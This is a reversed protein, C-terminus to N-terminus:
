KYAVDKKYENLALEFLLARNKLKKLQRYNRKSDYEYIMDLKLFKHFIEPINELGKNVLDLFEKKSPNFYPIFIKMEYLVEWNLSHQEDIYSKSLCFCELQGIDKSFIEREEIIEKVVNDFDISNVDINEYIKCWDNNLAHHVKYYM